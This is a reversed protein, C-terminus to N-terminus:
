KIKLTDKHLSEYKFFSPCIWNFKQKSLIKKLSGSNNYFKIILVDDFMSFQRIKFLNRSM